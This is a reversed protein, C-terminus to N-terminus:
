EVPQGCQRAAKQICQRLGQSLFPGNIDHCITVNRVIQPVQQFFVLAHVAFDQDDVADGQPAKVKHIQTADAHRGPGDGHRHLRQNEILVGPGM